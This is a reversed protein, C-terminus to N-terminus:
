QPTDLPHKAKEFFENQLRLSDHDEKVAHIVKQIAATWANVDYEGLERTGTSADGAYHHPFSAYWWIATYLPDPLKIRALDAGSERNERDIHVLDPRAILM